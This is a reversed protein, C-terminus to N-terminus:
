ENIEFGKELMESLTDKRDSISIIQEALNQIEDQVITSLFKKAGDLSNFYMSSRTADLGYQIRNEPVVVIKGSHLRYQAERWSPAVRLDSKIRIAKLIVVSSIRDEVFYIFHPFVVKSM